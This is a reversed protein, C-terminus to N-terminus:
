DKYIDSAEADFAAALSELRKRPADGMMEERDPPARFVLREGELKLSCGELPAASKPAFAAAFRLALGFQTASQQKEWPLLSIAAENPLAASRGQYRRYLALAIWVREEHSVAVLPASLATEFAHGGRLDPHFFAGVDMLLSAAYRLRRAANDGDQFLTEAVEFCAEGCAPAPALRAAYFRCAELLPDRRRDYKSLERYLIGERVGGSSVIVRAANMRQLSAKLVLCAYPLTDIRRRPIGPIEELSRRSQQAILNCIEIAARATMEYRHLVSLPYSRLRMHIRAVARWAGGVTYLTDSSNANLFGAKDLTQAILKEATRINEGSERMINLPGVPLSVSGGIAGRDLAVLELSGGGMDGAVGTADPEFSVVGQAALLAEQSGSLTKVDFGMERAAAVFDAGNRAERVASTAIVYTAPDGYEKLLRRYRRLTALAYAAAVPNLGGEGTMDRGLGCLAKENCIPIPARAPGEYVVLRVSNSGIDVVAKRKTADNASIPDEVARGATLTEASTM